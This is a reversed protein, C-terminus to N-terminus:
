ILFICGFETLKFLGKRKQNKPPGQPTVSYAHTMHNVKHTVAQKVGSKVIGARGRSGRVGETGLGDDPCQEMMWSPGGPM